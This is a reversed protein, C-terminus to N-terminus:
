YTNISGKLEGMKQPLKLVVQQHEIGKSSYFDHMLFEHGNDTKVM